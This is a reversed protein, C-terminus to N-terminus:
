VTRSRLPGERQAREARRSSTLPWLTLSHPPSSAERETMMMNTDLYQAMSCLSYCCLPLRSRRCNLLHYAEACSICHLLM